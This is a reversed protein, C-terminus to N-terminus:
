QVRVWAGNKFQALSNPIGPIPRQAGESPAAYPNNAAPAQGPAAGANLMDPNSRVQDAFAHASGAPGSGGGGRLKALAGAAQPTLTNIDLKGMGQRYQDNLADLKSQLMGGIQTMAGQLEQPSKTDGITSAWDKIDQESGGVGRWVRTLESTVGNKITNFDNLAVGTPSGGPTLANGIKNMFDYSGNNIGKAADSLQGLHGIVTNIANISSASKGSTFDNRVKQRANNSAQATDFSPDFQTMLQVIGQWFPTKMAIASPFPQKGETLSRVMNQIAMPQNKLAAEGTATSNPDIVPMAVGQPAGSQNAAANAKNAEAQQLGIKARMEAANQAAADQQAFRQTILQTAAPSPSAAALSQERTLGPQSARSLSDRDLVDQTLASARDSNAAEAGVRAATQMTADTHANDLAQNLAFNRAVDTNAQARAGALPDDGGGALNQGFGGFNVNKGKMSQWFADWAPGNDMVPSLPAGNLQGAIRNQRAQQSLAFLDQSANSM